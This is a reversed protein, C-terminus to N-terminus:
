IERTNLGANTMSSLIKIPKQFGFFNRALIGVLEDGQLLLSDIHVVRQEVQGFDVEQRRDNVVKGFM